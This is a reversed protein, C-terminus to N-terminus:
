VQDVEVAFGWATMVFYHCALGVIQLRLSMASRSPVAAAAFHDIGAESSCQPFYTWDM